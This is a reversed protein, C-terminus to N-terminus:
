ALKAATPISSMITILPLPPPPGLNDQSQFKCGGAFFTFLFTVGESIEIRSIYGGGGGGGGGGCVCM